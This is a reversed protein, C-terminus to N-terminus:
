QLALVVREIVSHVSLLVTPANAVITMLIVFSALPFWFLSSKFFATRFRPRNESGALQVLRRVRWKVGISNEHNVLFVGAPMAPRAGGPIMRAIKVLASALDLARERGERAAYEDAACESADAWANDLSRGCPVILLMDRCARLIGRKLTDRMALHGSEHAIAAAIEEATLSELVRGAIFLKPRIAGVIAIIPFSHDILYARVGIGEIDVPRGHAKWDVTLRRTARWAALGRFLALGIGVLSFIALTALKLSVKEATGRPEYVLYSPILLFAAFSLSLMAPAVRLSFVARARAEASGHKTLKASLRWLGVLVLSLLSNILLLSALLISIGLLLFV